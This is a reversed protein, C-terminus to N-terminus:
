GRRGTWLCEQRGDSPPPLVSLQGVAAGLGYAWACYTDAFVHGQRSIARWPTARIAAVLPHNKCYACWWGKRVVPRARSHLMHCATARCKSPSSHACVMMAAFPVGNWCSVVRCRSLRATVWRWSTAKLLPPADPRLHLERCFDIRCTILSAGM